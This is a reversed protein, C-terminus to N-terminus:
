FLDINTMYTQKKFRLLPFGTLLVLEGVCSVVYFLCDKKLYKKRLLMLLYEIFIVSRILFVYFKCVLM